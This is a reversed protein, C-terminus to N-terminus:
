RRDVDQTFSMYNSYLFGGTSDPANILIGLFLIHTRYYFNTLNWKWINIIRLTSTESITSVFANGIAIGRQSDISSGAPLKAQTLSSDFANADGISQRVASLNVIFHTGTRPISLWSFKKAKSFLKFLRM